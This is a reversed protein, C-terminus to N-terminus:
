KKRATYEENMGIGKMIQPTYKDIRDERTKPQKASTFYLLYGRQRGPTLEFFAKKLAANKAFKKELEEPIGPSDKKFDVKLGKEEIEVAEYIYSKLTSKLKAIEKVSTFEISRAAQTNEGPKKLIGKPDKMLAGKFFGVVACDQLEGIICINKKNFSYCPQSWKVDEVLDCELIISRLEELEKKWKSKNIITDVGTM